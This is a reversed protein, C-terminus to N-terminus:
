QHELHQDVIVKEICKQMSEEEHHHAYILQPHESHPFVAFYQSEEKSTSVQRNFQEHEIKAINSVDFFCYAESVSYNGSIIAKKVKLINKMRGIVAAMYKCLKKNGSSYLQKQTKAAKIM